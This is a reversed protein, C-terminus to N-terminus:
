FLPNLTSIKQVISYLEPYQDKRDFLFTKINKGIEINVAVAFIESSNLIAGEVQAMKISSSIDILGYIPFENKVEIIEKFQSVIRLKKKIIEEDISPIISLALKKGMESVTFESLYTRIKDYELSRLSQADM